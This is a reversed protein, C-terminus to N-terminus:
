VRAEEHFKGEVVKAFNEAELLWPLDPKWRTGNDYPIGDTLKRSQAVFAFFQEWFAIGESQTVYGKGIGNPKACYRWRTRLKDARAGDWLRPQRLMPLHKAYLALIESQPCDLVPPQTAPKSLPNQLEKLPSPSPTNPHRHPDDATAIRNSDANASADATADASSKGYRASAGAKGAAQKKQQSEVAIALEANLRKQRWIGGEVHFFAALVPKHKRWQQPSVKAVAALQSDDDQLAGGKRWAAMLLMLYAGHQEASLHLTDALYDGIYLPM